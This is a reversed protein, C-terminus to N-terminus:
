GKIEIPTGNPVLSWIERMEEDTVAVCGNTWNWRRHLVGLFGWGNPLGHIMVNGGPPAGADSAHQIDDANPYSIHLSLHYASHENRWDILYRGEPTKRDGEQQKHGHPNSGLSIRYEKLVAGDRLLQIRKESKIVLIADAQDAASAMAPAASSGFRAALRTYGYAAIALLGATLSIAVLLKLTM